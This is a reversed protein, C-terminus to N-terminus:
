QLLQSPILQIFVLFKYNLCVLTRLNYLRDRHRVTVRVPLMLRKTPPNDHKKKAIYPEGKALGNINTFFM